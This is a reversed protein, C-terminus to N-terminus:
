IANILKEVDEKKTSWSTCLRIVIKEPSLKEWIQFAFDKSLMEMQQHSIIPFLQNTPSDYQMTVGKQQLESKLLDAM